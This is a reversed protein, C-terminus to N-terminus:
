QFYYIWKIQHLVISTYIYCFFEHLNILFPLSTNNDTDAFVLFYIFYFDTPIFPSTKLFNVKLIRYDMYWFYCIMKKTLSFTFVCTNLFFFKKCMLFGLSTAYPYFFSLSFIYWFAQSSSELLLPWQHPHLQHAEQRGWSDMAREEARSQWLM